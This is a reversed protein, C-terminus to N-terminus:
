TGLVETLSRAELGMEQLRELLTPLADAFTERNCCHALVIQGHLEAATRGDTVQEIFFAPDKPMGVADRPDISWHIPLYGQEIVAQVTRDDYHGYPFRFYPRTTAGTIDHVLRETEALEHAIQENTLTRFDAHTLSHSAFEHGDAAIQQALEPHQEVWSGLVFFTVHADHERLTDLIRRVPLDGTELDLTLAVRPQDTRGQKIVLPAPALTSQHGEMQPVIIARGPPPTAHLRNYSRILAESSGGNRAVVRLDEGAAITHVGYGAIAVAEPGPMLDPLTQMPIGALEGLHVWLPPADAVQLQVWSEGYHALAVYPTGAAITGYPEGETSPAFWATVEHELRPPQPEATAPSADPANITATAPQQQSRNILLFLLAVLALGALVAALRSRGWRRPLTRPAPRTQGPAHRHPRQAAASPAATFRYVYPQGPVHEVLGARKWALICRDAVLAERCAPLRKLDARRWEHPLHARAEALVTDATPTPRRRAFPQSRQPQRQLRAYATRGAAAWAAITTGLTAGMRRVLAHWDVPQKMM